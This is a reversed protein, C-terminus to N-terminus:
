ILMVYTYRIKVNAVSKKKKKSLDHFCDNVFTEKKNCALSYTPGPGTTAPVVVHIFSM